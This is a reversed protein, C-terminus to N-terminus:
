IGYAARMQKKVEDIDPKQPGSIDVPVFANMFAGPDDLHDPGNNGVGLIHGIEHSIAKRLDEPSKWPEQLDLVLDMKRDRIPGVTARALKPGGADIPVARIVVNADDLSMDLEEDMKFEDDLKDDWPKYAEGFLGMMQKKTLAGLNPSARRLDELYTSDFHVFFGPKGGIGKASNRTINGHNVLAVGSTNNVDPCGVCEGGILDNVVGRIGSTLGRIEKFVPIADKLRTAIQDLDDSRDGSRVKESIDALDGFVTSIGQLAKGMDRESPLGAILGDDKFLDIVRSGLMVWTIPDM